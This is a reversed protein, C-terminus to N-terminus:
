VDANIKEIKYQQSRGETPAKCLSLKEYKGESILTQLEQEFKRMDDKILRRNEPLLNKLIDIEGVSRESLGADLLAIFESISNIPCELKERVKKEWIYLNTLIGNIIDLVLLVADKQPEKMEHISDNGIFRISHLRDRDSKTIIGVRNLSNIKTELNKANISKDICIAEIIARFGAAALRYCKNNIATVTERYIHYIHTPFNWSFEIPNITAEQVPYSVHQEYMTLEGNEDYDVYSEDWQELDFSLHDCGCCKVLRYINRWWYDESDSHEADEALVVHKTKHNCISCYCKIYKKSEAM